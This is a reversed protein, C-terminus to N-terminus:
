GKFDAASITQMALVDPLDIARHVSGGLYSLAILISDCAANSINPFNYWITDIANNYFISSQPAAKINIPTSFSILVGKDCFLAVIQNRSM